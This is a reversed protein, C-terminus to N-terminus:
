RGKEVYREYLRAILGPYLRDKALIVRAVSLNLREERRKDNRCMDSITAIMEPVRKDDLILLMDNGADFAARTIKAFDEKTFETQYDKRVFERLAPAWLDDTMVIGWPLIAHAYGVIRPSLCAPVSDYDPYVLSSMMVGDLWPAVRAFVMLDDAFRKASVRYRVLSVDSNWREEGYGPFHKAIVLVGGEQCGRAFEAGKEAVTDPDGSFVRLMRRQLANESGSVDLCPALNTNLGLERMDRGLKLTYKYVSDKPWSGMEVPSPTTEYGPINRLRNVKGCEQDCSLLPPIEMASMFDSCLKQTYEVSKIHHKNNMVVGGIHYKAAYTPHPPFSLLIQGARMELPISRAITLASDIQAQSPQPGLLALATIPGLMALLILFFSMRACDCNGLEGLSIM